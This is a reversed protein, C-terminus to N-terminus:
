NNHTGPKECKGDHLKRIDQQKEIQANCLLCENDYTNQDTGCIPNLNRPCASTENRVKTYETCNVETGNDQNLKEQNAVVSFAWTSTALALFALVASKMM